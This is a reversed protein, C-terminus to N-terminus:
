GGALQIVKDDVDSLDRARDDSPRLEDFDHLAPQAVAPAAAFDVEGVTLLVLEDKVGLVFLLFLFAGLPQRGRGAERSVKASAVAVRAVM